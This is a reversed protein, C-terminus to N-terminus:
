ADGDSQGPEGVAEVPLVNQLASVLDGADVFTEQDIEAILDGLDAEGDAFLLTTGALREVLAEREAPYTQEDLRADLRSLKVENSM